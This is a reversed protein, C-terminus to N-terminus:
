YIFYFFCSASKQLPLVMKESKESLKLIEQSGLNGHSVPVRFLLLPSTKILLKARILNLKDSGPPVQFGPPSGYVSVRLMCKWNVSLQVEACMLVVGVLQM